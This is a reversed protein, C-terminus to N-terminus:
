GGVVEGLYNALTSCARQALAAGGEDTTAEGRALEGVFQELTDAFQSAGDLGVVSLAGRVQHLHAQAFQLQTQPETDAAAKGIAESARELAEDIEGRVWSLPG